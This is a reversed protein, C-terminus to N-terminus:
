PLPIAVLADAAITAPSSIARDVLRFPRHNDKRGRDLNNAPFANHRGLSVQPHM